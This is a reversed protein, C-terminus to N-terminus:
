FCRSMLKYLKGNLINLLFKLIKEGGSSLLESEQNCAVEQHSTDIVRNM